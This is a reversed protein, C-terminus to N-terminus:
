EKVRGVVAGAPIENVVYNRGAELAKENMESLKPNKVLGSLVEQATTLPLCGTAELLAGMMVVNAVKASGIQNAIENAPVCAVTVGNFSLDEPLSRGNYLLVGGAQVTAGFKRLSPENMAVLTEPRTVLPTGIRQHSLTVHCHASGSRMEPGYSPLWSVEMHERMGMEAILQGLLLVGQGGFGAIKLTMPHIQKERARPATVETAAASREDTIDLLEAVSKQPVAVPTFEPKRDRFVGLPFQKVLTEGVWRRAVTPEMKLITPCPSLIEVMSFGAGQRQLELAKKV